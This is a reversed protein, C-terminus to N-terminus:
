TKGCDFCVFSYIPSPCHPAAEKGEKTMKDGGSPMQCISGPRGEDSLEQQQMHTLSPWRIPPLYNSVSRHQLGFHKELVTPTKLGLISLLQARIKHMNQPVAGDPACM